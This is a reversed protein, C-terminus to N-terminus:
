MKIKKHFKDEMFYLFIESILYTNLLCLKGALCFEYLAFLELQV